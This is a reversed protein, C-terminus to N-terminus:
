HGLYGNWAWSDNRHTKFDKSPFERATWHNPNRAKVASPRPEIGPQLILIGRASCLQWFLFAQQPSPRPGQLRHGVSEVWGGRAAVTAQLGGEADVDVPGEWQGDERRLDGNDQERRGGQQGNPQSVHDGLQQVGLLAELPVAEPDSQVLSAPLRTCTEPAPASCRHLTPIGPLPCLQQLPNIFIALPLM